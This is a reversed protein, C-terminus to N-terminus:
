KKYWDSKIDRCDWCCHCVPFFSARAPTLKTLVMLFHSRQSRLLRWRHLGPTPPVGWLGTQWGTQIAWLASPPKRMKKITLFILIIINWSTFIIYVKFKLTQLYVWQVWGCANLWPQERMSCHCFQTTTVFMLYKSDTGKYFFNAPRQHVRNYWKLAM